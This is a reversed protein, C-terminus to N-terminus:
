TQTAHFLRDIDVNVILEWRSNRTGEAPRTKDLRFYHRTRGAIRELEWILRADGHGIAELLFGLRKTLAPKGLELVYRILRDHNLDDHRRAFGRFVEEIGGCLEPRDVCDLFTRELDAVKVPPGGEIQMEKYGFFKRGNLKIFRFRVPGVRKEARQKTVAVFVTRLPHQIMRHFEMATYYALFYPDPRVLAEAAAYRNGGLWGAQDWDAPEVLVYRDRELRRAFNARALRRALGKAKDPTVDLVDALDAVRFFEMGQDALRTVADRITVRTM